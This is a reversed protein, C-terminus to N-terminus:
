VSKGPSVIIEVRRNNARNEASKNDAIPRDPGHGASTIRDSAIGHGVLYERVSNARNVSLEKNADAKGQSDTHGEVVFTADPDGKLLAAAVESLKAQAAPLLAFKNSAFLVSGSLTIVTGREEQKVSAIRALDATALAARAEADARRQKEAALEKETAAGATKQATLADRTNALEDKTRAADQDKLMATEKGDASIGLKLMEIRALAQALESKRQAIYAKDRVLLTDGDDKFAKEARGLSEKAIHLDAPTYKKSPGQEAQAYATRANVLETPAAHACALLLFASGLLIPNIINM